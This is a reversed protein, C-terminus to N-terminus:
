FFILHLLFSCIELCFPIKNVALLPRYDRSNLVNHMLGETIEVHPLNVVRYTPETHDILQVSSLIFPKQFSGNKENTLTWEPLYLIQMHVLESLWCTVSAWHRRQIRSCRQSTACRKRHSHWHVIYPQLRRWYFPSSTLIQGSFHSEFQVNSTTHRPRYYRQVSLVCRRTHGTEGVWSGHTAPRSVLRSVPSDAQTQSLAATPAKDAQWTPSISSMEAQTLGWVMKYQVAFWCSRCPRYVISVFPFCIHNWNKKIQGASSFICSEACGTICGCPSEEGITTILQFHVNM